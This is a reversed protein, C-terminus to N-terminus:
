EPLAHHVRTYVHGLRLHDLAQGGHLHFKRGGVAHSGVGGRQTAERASDVRASDGGKGLGGESLRRGRRTAVRASDGGM